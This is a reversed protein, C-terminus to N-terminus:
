VNIITTYDKKSRSINKQIVEYTPIEDGNLKSPELNGHIFDEYIDLESYKHKM